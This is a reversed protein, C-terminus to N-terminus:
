PRYSFHTTGKLSELLPYVRKIWKCLTPRTTRPDILDHMSFSEARPIPSQTRLLSAELREREANPDDAAAIKRAFAAAVGGEVPIAGIEASPWAVVFGNPGFHASEAVGHAKRIIVSAWPVVSTAAAIVAAAGFRITGAKEAEEGIM